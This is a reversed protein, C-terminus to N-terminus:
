FEDLNGEGNLVLVKKEVRDISDNCYKLLQMGKQYQAFSDELSIKEDELRRTIEELRAFAEELTLEREEM